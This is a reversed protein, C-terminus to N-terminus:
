RVHRPKEWGKLWQNTIRVEDAFDVNKQFIFPCWISDMTKMLQKPMNVMQILTARLSLSRYRHPCFGDKWIDTVLVLTDMFEQPQGCARRTNNIFAESDWRRLTVPEGFLADTWTGVIIYHKVRPIEPHLNSWPGEISVWKCEGLPSWLHTGRICKDAPQLCELATTTIDIFLHKDDDCMAWLNHIDQFKLSM